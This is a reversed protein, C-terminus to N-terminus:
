NLLLPIIVTHFIELDIDMFTHASDLVFELGKVISDSDRDSLGTLIQHLKGVSSCTTASESWAGTSLCVLQQPGTIVFRQGCSFTAISEVLDGNM